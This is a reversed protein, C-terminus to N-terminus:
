SRPGCSPSSTSGRVVTEFPVPESVKDFENCYTCALNCRRIPMIQALIPHNRDVLARAVLKTGDLIDSLLSMNVGLFSDGPRTHDPEPSPKATPEAASSRGTLFFLAFLAVFMAILAWAPVELFHGILALLYFRPLRGVAQAVIYRLIPYHSAPALIRIITIPLPIFSFLAVIAFPWRKMWRLAWKFLRTTMISAIRPHKMAAEVMAYDAFAM